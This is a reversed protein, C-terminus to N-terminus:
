SANTLLPVEPANVIPTAKSIIKEYDRIHNESRSQMSLSALSKILNVPIPKNQKSSNNDKDHHFNHNMNEKYISIRRGGQDSKLWDGWKEEQTVGKLSDEIQSSCNRSEHGIHGCYNCFIGIREYKLNIIIIFTKQNPGSIKLSRKLPKTIDLWVKTKVISNELGKLDILNDGYRTCPLKLQEVLDFLISILTALRGFLSKSFRAVGGQIDAADLVIVTEEDVSDSHILGEATIDTTAM